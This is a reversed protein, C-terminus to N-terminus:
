QDTQILADAAAIELLASLLSRQTFLDWSQEQEPDRRITQLVAIKCHRIPLVRLYYMWDDVKVTMTYFADMPDRHGKQEIIRCVRNFQEQKFQRIFM